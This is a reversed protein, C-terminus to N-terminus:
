SFLGLDMDIGSANWFVSNSRVLRDYPGYIQVHIFVTTADPALRVESIRGVAVGRYAVPTGVDLSRRHPARLVFETAGLHGEAPARELGTF